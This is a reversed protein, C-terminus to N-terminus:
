DNLIIRMANQEIHFGCKKYFETNHDACQLVVKYCHYDKAIEIARIVLAKGHGKGRLEESVWVDEILGVPDGDRGSNIILTLKSTILDPVGPSFTKLEIKRINNITIQM